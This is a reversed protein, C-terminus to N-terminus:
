SILAENAFIIPIDLSKLLNKPGIGSRQLIENSHIGTSLIVEKNAKIYITKGNQIAEIGIAVNDRFIVKSVTTNLIINKLIPQLFDISSSARLGNQQQFLSWRTFTGLPTSPDNYDNIIPQGVATSLATAFKTAMITSIVPAERIQMLGHFGHVSPDFAGTVGVFKELERFGQTVSEPNWDSGNLDAWKQWFKTTSRVYQMGNISSGGGLMRGTTYNMTMDNLNPNPLTEQNYFFKWTYQSELIGSNTANIILPDDDYNVGAEIGLAAFGADLLTRLVVSGGPGMGVVIFDTEEDWLLGKCKKQHLM